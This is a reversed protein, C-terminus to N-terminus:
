LTITKESKEIADVLGPYDIRTFSSTAKLAEADDELVFVEANEPLAVGSNKMNEATNYVGSQLFVIKGAVAFAADRLGAPIASATRTVLLLTGSM